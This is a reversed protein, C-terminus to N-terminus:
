LQILELILYTSITFLFPLYTGAFYVDSMEIAEVDQRYEELKGTISGNQLVIKITDGNKLTSLFQSLENM